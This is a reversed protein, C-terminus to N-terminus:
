VYLCMEIRTGLHHPVDCDSCEFCRPGRPEKKEYEIKERDTWKSDGKSNKSFMDNKNRFKENSSNMLKKFNRAFMDLEDEDSSKESKEKTTKLAVSKTKRLLPM